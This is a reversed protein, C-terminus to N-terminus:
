MFPSSAVLTSASSTHANIPTSNTPAQDTSCSSSSAAPSPGSVTLPPRSIKSRPQPFLMSPYLTVIAPVTCTQASASSLMSDANIWARPSEVRVTARDPAAPMSADDDDESDSSVDDVDFDLSHSPHERPITEVYEDDSAPDAAFLEVPHFPQTYPIEAAPSAPNLHFPEVSSAGLMRSEHDDYDDYDEGYDDENDSEPDAAFVGNDNHIVHPDIYSREPSTTGSTCASSSPLYGVPSQMGSPSASATASHYWFYGREDDPEYSIPSSDWFMSDSEHPSPLTPDLSSSLSPSPSCISPYSSSSSASPFASTRPDEGIGPFPDYLFPSRESKIHIFLDRPAPNRPALPSSARSSSPSVPSGPPYQGFSPENAAAAPWLSYPVAYLDDDDGRSATVDYDASPKADRLTSSPLHPPGAAYGPLPTYTFSTVLDFDMELKVSDM